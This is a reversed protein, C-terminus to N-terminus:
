SKLCPHAPHSMASPQVLREHQLVAGCSGRRALCATKIHVLTAAGMCTGALARDSLLSIAMCIRELAGLQWLPYVVDEVPVPLVPGAARGEVM